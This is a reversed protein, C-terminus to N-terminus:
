DALICLSFHDPLLLLLFRIGVALPLQAWEKGTMRDATHFRYQGMYTWLVEKDGVSRCEASSLQRFTTRGNPGDNPVTWYPGSNFLGHNGPTTPAYPNWDVRFCMQHINGAVVRHTAPDNITERRNGGFVEAIRARTFSTQTLDLASPPVITTTDPVGPPLRPRLASQQFCFAHSLLPLSSIPSSLLSSHPARGVRWGEDRELM